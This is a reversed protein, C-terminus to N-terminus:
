MIAVRTLPVARPLACERTVTEGLIFRRPVASLGNSGADKKSRRQLSSEGSLEFRARCFPVDRNKSDRRRPAALSSSENAATDRPPEKVPFSVTSASCRIQMDDVRTHSHSLQRGRSRLGRSVYIVSARGIKEKLRRRLTRAPAASCSGLIDAVPLSSLRAILGTTYQTVTLISHLIIEEKYQGM